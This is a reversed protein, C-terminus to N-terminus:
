YKKLSQALISAAGIYKQPTLELMNQKEEAPLGELNQIFELYEARSVTAKGRTFDKLKEYPNPIDYKRMVTQVPEALLEYHNDLEESLKEARVDIRSLGKKLAQVAQLNYSFAVGLNRLVTSDSM